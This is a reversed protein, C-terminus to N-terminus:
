GRKVRFKACVAVALIRQDFPGYHWKQTEIAQQLLMSCKVAHEWWWSVRVGSWRAAASPLVAM